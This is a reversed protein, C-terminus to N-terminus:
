CSAHHWPQSGGLGSCHGWQPVGPVARSAEGKEQEGWHAIQPVLLSRSVCQGDGVLGWCSCSDEPVGCPGQVDRSLCLCCSHWIWFPTGLPRRSSLSFYEGTGEGKWTKRENELIPIKPIKVGLINSKKGEKHCQYRRKEVRRASQSLFFLLSILQSNVIAAM